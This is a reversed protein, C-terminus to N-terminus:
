EDKEAEKLRWYRAKHYKRQYERYKNGRKPPNKKQYDRQYAIRRDKNKESYHYSVASRSISLRKAIDKIKMGEKRLRKIENIQEKTIKM